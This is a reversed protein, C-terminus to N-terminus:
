ARTARIWVTWCTSWTSACTRSKVGEGQGVDQYGIEFRKELVLMLSNFVGCRVSVQLQTLVDVLEKVCLFADTTKDCESATYARYFSFVARKLSDSHFLLQLVSNQFCTNSSNVLGHFM